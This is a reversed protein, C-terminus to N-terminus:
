LVNCFTAIRAAILRMAYCVCSCAAEDAVMVAVATGVCVFVVLLFSVLMVM